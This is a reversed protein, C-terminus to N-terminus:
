QTLQQIYKKAQEKTIKGSQYDSKVEDASKYTPAEVTAGPAAAPAAPATPAASAPIQGATSEAAASELSAELDAATQDIFAQREIPDILTPDAAAAQQAMTLASRRRVDPAMTKGQQVWALGKSADGGFLLDAVYEANKMMATRSSGSAGVKNARIKNGQDDTIYVAKGGEVTFTNGDADTFYDPKTTTVPRAEYYNAQANRLRVEAAKLQADTAKGDQYQQLKQQYESEALKVNREALALRADADKESVGTARKQEAFKAEDQQMNAARVRNMLADQKSKEYADLGAGAGEGLAGFFYPNRSAAMAFGAKAIAMRRMDEPSQISGQIEQLLAQVKDPDDSAAELARGVAITEPPIDADDTAEKAATVGAQIPDVGPAYGVDEEPLPPLGPQRPSGRGNREFSPGSNPLAASGRGSGEFAPGGNPVPGESQMATIFPSQSTQWPPTWGDTAVDTLSPAPTQMEQDTLAGQNRRNMEAQVAGIIAPSKAQQALAALEMETAGRLYSPLRTPDMNMM